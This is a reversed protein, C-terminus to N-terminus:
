FTGTVGITGLGVVPAVSRERVYGFAALLLGGGAVAFSITSTTGLARVGSVDDAVDNPCNGNACRDHVSDARTLALVGTISGVLLGASAIGLGSYTLTYSRTPAPDRPPPALTTPPPRPADVVVKRVEGEGLVLDHRVLTAASVLLLHKGPSVRHHAADAPTLQVGDLVVLSGPPTVIELTAVRKQLETVLKAADARATASKDTEEPAVPIKAISEAVTLAEVLELAAVHERALDLGVIPSQVRAFAVRFFTLAGVHDGAERLDLGQNYLAKATEVDPSTQAAAVLTHSAIAIAVLCSVRRIFPCM